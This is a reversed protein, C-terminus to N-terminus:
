FLNYYEDSGAILAIVAEYSMGSRMATVYANLGTPDAPRRLLWEYFADVVDTDSEVSELVLTAVSTPSAGSALMQGWTQAGASDIPRQLVDGYLTELYSSNTGGGRGSYYEPSGLFIAELQEYTGGQNLFNVWASLGASDPERNLLFGYLYDVELTHYEPSTEISAVVQTRTEGSALDNEWGALGGADIPRQLLDLYVQTLFRQNPDTIPPDATYRVLLGPPPNGSLNEGVVLIKGDPQLALDTAPALDSGFQTIVYGDDGFTTDVSGNPNLRILGFGDSVEGAVVIRGDSQVDVAYAVPNTGSAFSSTVTGDVGFTEDFTGNSNLRTVDFQQTSSPDTTLVIRGNSQLAMATFGYPSVPSKVFGADGFTTDVSGDANFREVGPDVEMLIKGNPQLALEAFGPGLGANTSAHGMNGFSTDLTGDPNYRFLTYPSSVLIKGDPQVAIGQLGVLGVIPPVVDVSGNSGFGTDLSGNSLLRFMNDDAAALIKGDPQLALSPYLDESAGAPLPGLPLAEEGNTGFSTDLSGSSNFRAVEIAETGQTPNGIIAAVIIQGNPQLVVETSSTPVDVIGGTGFTPDLMGANLLTRDELLELRPRSLLRCLLSARLHSMIAVGLPM